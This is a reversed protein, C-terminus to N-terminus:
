KRDLLSGDNENISDLLNWYGTFVEIHKWHYPPYEEALEKKLKAMLKQIKAQQKTADM